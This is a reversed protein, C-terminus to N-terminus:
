FEIVRYTVIVSELAHRITDPSVNPCWIELSLSQCLASNITNDITITGSFITEISMVTPVTGVMSLLAGSHNVYGAVGTNPNYTMQKLAWAWRTDDTAHNIKINTIIYQAFPLDLPISYSVSGSAIFYIYTSLGNLYGVGQTVTSKSFPVVLYRVPGYDGTFGTDKAYFNKTKISTYGFFGDCIELGNSSNTQLITRQTGSDNNLLEIRSIGSDPYIRLKGYSELTGNVYVSDGATSTGWSQSPLYYVSVKDGFVLGFSLYTSYTTQGITDAFVIDTYMINRTGIADEERSLYQPHHDNTLSSNLIRSISGAGTNFNDKIAKHSVPTTNIRHTVYDQSGHSHTYLGQVLELVVDAISAGITIVSLGTSPYYSSSHTTRDKLVTDTYGCASGNNTIWNAFATSTTFLCWGQISYDDYPYGIAKYFTVGEVITGTQSKDWLYIFGNTLPAVGTNWNLAAILTRPLTYRYHMANVPDVCADITDSQWPYVDSSATDTTQNISTTSTSTQPFPDNDEYNILSNIYRRLPLRPPLFILFGESSDTGNFYSVKCGRFNSSITDPDPIINFQSYINNYSSDTLKIPEYTLTWDEQIAAYTTVKGTVTDVYFDNTINVSSVNAAISGSPAGTGTWTWTTCTGIPALRLFAEREGIYQKFSFTIRTLGDLVPFLPSFKHSQGIIRALNAIMLPSSSTGTQEIYYDGSQNWLDGLAYELWQFAAKSQSSLATLKTNLPMEGQTFSIQIPYSTRFKDSM